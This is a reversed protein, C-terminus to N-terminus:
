VRRRYGLVRGAGGPSGRRHKGTGALHLAAADIPLPPPAAAPWEGRPTPNGDGASSAARDGAGTGRGEPGHAAPLHGAHAGPCRSAGGGASLAGAGPPGEDGSPGGGHEECRRPGVGGGGSPLRQGGADPSGVLGDTGEGSILRESAKAANQPLRRRTARTGRRPFPTM